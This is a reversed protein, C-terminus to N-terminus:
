SRKMAANILWQCLMPMDLGARQAAKPMLSHSTMGPIVNIELIYPKLTTPDIRWDVRSFDRCGCLQHAEVSM